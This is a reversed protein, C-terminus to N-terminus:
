RRQRLPRRENRNEGRNERNEGRGDGRRFNGNRKQNRSDNHDKDDRSDFDTNNDIVSSAKTFIMKGAATQIVSTVIVEAKKNLMSGGNEVVVMTGDEMYGIGQNEDKGERLIDLAIHEGPLVVPKLASTLTNLNLVEVDQLVAVKNLNFDNTILFADIERAMRVLKADVERIDTYDKYSIKVEIDKREQLKNLMDLGRRGRNRKISDSSDSILQIERLVYNPVIFPGEVFKTEAIDMIRGDIIVSTDLLKPRAGIRTDKSSFKENSAKPAITNSFLNSSLGLNGFFFVGIIYLSLDVIKSNLGFDHIMAKSYQAIILGIIIGLGMSIFKESKKQTLFNERYLSVLVLSFTIITIIFDASGGLGVQEIHSVAGVILAVFTAIIFRILHRM